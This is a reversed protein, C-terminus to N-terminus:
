VIRHHLLNNKGDHQAIHLQAFYHAIRESFVKKTENKRKRNTTKKKYCTYVSEYFSFQKQRTFFVSTFRDSRFFILLTIMNLSDALIPWIKGIGIGIGGLIASVQRHRNIPM